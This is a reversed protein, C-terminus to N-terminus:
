KADLRLFELGITDPEQGPGAKAVIYLNHVKGDTVPEIKTKLQAKKNKGGTSKGFNVEGLKKGNETDLRLEFVYGAQATEAWIIGIEAETVGSLDLSDMSFYSSTKTAAVVDIGNIERDTFGDMRTAFEHDLLNNRLTLAASGTLPKIGAATKDTYSAFLYLIGNSKVPQGLTPNVSGSAPLSKAAATGPKLTHIWNVIKRADSESLGPHAPMATEGWVGSGGKIIKNKVIM